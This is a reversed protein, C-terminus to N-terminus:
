RKLGLEWIKKSVAKYSRGIKGAIYELKFGNNYYCKLKSLQDETWFKKSPIHYNSFFIDRKRRLSFGPDKYIINRFLETHKSYLNWQYIKINKKEKPTIQGIFGVKARLTSLFNRSASVIGCEISNRRTCVWGDGDFVGRLYLPFFKDPINPVFEHGTKRPFVGLPELKRCLHKSHVRIRISNSSKRKEIPKKPCLCNKVFEIVEIDKESLDLFITQGDSSGDATLFGLLYSSDYNWTDFFDEYVIYKRKGKM